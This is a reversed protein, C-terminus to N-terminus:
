KKMIKWLPCKTLHVPRTENFPVQRERKLKLKKLFMKIYQPYYGSDHLLVADQKAYRSFIEYVAPLEPGWTYSFFVDPQDMPALDQIDPKSSVFHAAYPHERKATQIERDKEERYVAASEGTKRFKLYDKPFFSGTVVKCEVESDIFGERRAEEILKRSVDALEENIEIGVGNFGLSCAAILNTGLGSGPEQYLAGPNLEGTQLMFDLNDIVSMPNHPYYGTAKSTEAYKSALTHERRNLFKMLERYEKPVYPLNPRDERIWDSRRYAVTM